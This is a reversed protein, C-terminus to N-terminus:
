RMVNNYIEVQKKIDDKLMELKNNELVIPRIRNEKEQAISKSSKFFDLFSTQGIRITEIVEKNSEIKQNIVPISNQLLDREKEKQVSKKINWELRALELKKHFKKWRENDYPSQWDGQPESDIQAKEEKIKDEEIYTNNQKVMKSIEDISPPTAGASGGQQNKLELYKNKYKLYKNRYNDTSM